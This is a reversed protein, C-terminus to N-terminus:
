WIDWTSFLLKKVNKPVEQQAVSTSVFHYLSNRSLCNQASWQFVSRVCSVICLIGATQVIWQIAQLQFSTHATTETSGTSYRAREQEWAGLLIPLQELDLSAVQVLLQVPCLHCVQLVNVSKL